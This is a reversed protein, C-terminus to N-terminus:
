AFVEANDRVFQEFSRPARGLLDKVTSVPPIRGLTRLSVALDIIAEVVPKPMGMGLMSQTAAEDSVDVFKLQRGIVKGIIAVQDAVSISDPGTLEYAKGAHGEGTLAAEAVAAIDDPDVVPTAATGYPGYVTGGNKLMGAWELANTAISSPRLFTFPVGSAAIAKESARHWKAFLPGEYEAGQVSQKVIHTVGEAKAADLLNAELKTLDVGTTLVFLKSVGKMAARVAVPDALDGAFLEVGAPVKSKDPKRSIARVPLKRAALRKVLKSGVNGTAGTVLITGM